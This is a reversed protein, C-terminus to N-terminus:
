LLSKVKVKKLGRDGVDSQMISYLRAICVERNDLSVKEDMQTEIDGRRRMGRDNLRQIPKRDSEKEKYHRM